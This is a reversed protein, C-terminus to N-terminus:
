LNITNLTNIIDIKKTNVGAPAKNSNVFSSNNCNTKLKM